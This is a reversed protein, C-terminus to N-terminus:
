PQYRDACRTPDRQARKRRLRGRLRRDRQRARRPHWWRRGGRHEVRAHLETTTRRRQADSPSRGLLGVSRHAHGRRLWGTRIRSRGPHRRACRPRGTCGGRLRAATRHLRHCHRGVRPAARAALPLELQNGHRLTFSPDAAPGLSDIAPQYSLMPRVSGGFRDRPIMVTTVAAVAHGRTDTSRFKVHWADAELVRRLMRVEVPRSDLLEGPRFSELNEPVAYFADDAPSTVSVLLRSSLREFLNLGRVMVSTAVRERRSNLDTRPPLAVRHSTM